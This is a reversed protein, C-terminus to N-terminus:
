PEDPPPAHRRQFDDLNITTGSCRSAEAAYGIVHSVVSRQISTQMASPVECTMEDYLANILGADGGAHTDYGGAEITVDHHTSTGTIFDDVIIDHGSLQKALHGAVLRGRTGRLILSRGDDFATMTFTATIGGEFDLMVTQRDVATNDCHYVCRGWPSVKLWTEFEAEDMVGARDNIYSFWHHRYKQYYLYANYPCTALHPCGDSCRKTTGPPAGAPTFHRLEGFSSVRRCPRGALWQLIDMDHCCKAIIMPTSKETVAWHGRVYSHAQHFTGVGENADLAALEGIVGRDLLQKVMRYIPTFRLVHCIMVRQGSRTAAQELRLVDELRTAIPKELLVDYGRDLADLCPEVHYHDQTGIIVVDALKLQSLLEKDSAFARFAPNNSIARISEVREAIPDAAAVIEYREPQKAALELYTRTRGGCGISALKLKKM